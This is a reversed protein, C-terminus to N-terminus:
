ATQGTPYLVGIVVKGDFRQSLNKDYSLTKLLLTGNVDNVDAHARGPTTGWLLLLVLPSLVLKSATYKPAEIM